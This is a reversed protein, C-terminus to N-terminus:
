AGGARILAIRESPKMQPPTQGTVIGSSRDFADFRGIAERRREPNALAILDIALDNGAISTESSRSNLISPDTAYDFAAFDDAYIECIKEVDRDALTSAFQDWANTANQKGAPVAFPLAARLEDFNELRGVADYRVYGALTNLVQPRFHPDLEAPEVGGIVDLFESLSCSRNEPWRNERCFREWTFNSTGTSQVRAIKDTWASLTRGFPNRVVCFRFATRLQDVIPALDVVRRLFPNNKRVGDYTSTGSAADEARWLADLITTTGVKNNRAFVINLNPFYAISQIVLKQTLM